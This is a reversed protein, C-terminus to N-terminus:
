MTVQLRLGCYASNNPSNNDDMVLQLQKFDKIHGRYSSLHMGQPIKKGEALQVFCQAFHKLEAAPLLQPTIVTVYSSQLSVTEHAIPTDACWSSM